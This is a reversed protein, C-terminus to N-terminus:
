LVFVNEMCYCSHSSLSMQSSTNWVFGNKSFHCFIIFGPLCLIFEPPLWLNGAGALCTSVLTQGECVTLLPDIYVRLGPLPCFCICLFNFSMADSHAKSPSKQQQKSWTWTRNTTKYLVSVCSCTPVQRGYRTPLPMVTTSVLPSLHRCVSSPLMNVFTVDSGDAATFPLDAYLYKCINGSLSLSLCSKTLNRKHLIFLSILYSLCSLYRIDSPFKALWITLTWLFDSTLYQLAYGWICITAYVWTYDLSLTM